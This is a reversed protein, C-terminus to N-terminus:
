FAQSSGFSVVPQRKADRTPNVPWALDFRLVRGFTWQPASFRLGIGSDVFWGSGGAGPGWTRAGDAFAVMGVALLDGFVNAVKWRQEANLRWLRRGALAQVPYARLGNLGGVILQFDRDMELGAVGEAAMVLALRESPQHIWRAEIQQLLDHPTRRLRTEISGRAWGFGLRTSAGRDFQLRTYGEGRRRFWGPAYGLKFRLSSGVDFDETTGIEDVDIREIYDPRWLRMEANLRRLRLSSEGGTLERPVATAGTAVTPGLRKDRLYLSYTFRRITSDTWGGHGWWLEGDELRQSIRALETARQYLVANSTAREWSVGYSRRVDLAWFPVGLSLRTSAGDSGDGTVMSLRAHSGYVDPDFYSLYQSVGVPDHRWSFSLSKGLGALNRDTFALAGYKKGGSSEFNFEPSTTWLDRTAILVNM